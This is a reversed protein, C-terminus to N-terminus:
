SARQGTRRGTTVLGDAQHQAAFWQPGSRGLVRGLVPAILISGSVWAILGLLILVMM